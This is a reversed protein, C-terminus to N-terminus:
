DPRCQRSGLPVNGLALFGLERHPLLGTTVAVAVPVPLAGPLMAVYTVRIALLTALITEAAPLPMACARRALSGACRLSLSLALAVTRTLRRRLAVASTGGALVASGTALASASRTVSKVPLVPTMTPTALLRDIAHAIACAVADRPARRM